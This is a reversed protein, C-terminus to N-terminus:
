LWESIKAVANNLGSPLGDNWAGVGSAYPSTADLSQVDFSFLDMGEPSKLIIRASNTYPYARPNVLYTHSIQMGTKNITTYNTGDYSIAIVNTWSPNINVGNDILLGM